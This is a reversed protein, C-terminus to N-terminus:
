PDRRLPQPAMLLHLEQPCLAAKAPTSREVISRERWLTVEWFHLILFRKLQPGLVCTITWPAQPLISM